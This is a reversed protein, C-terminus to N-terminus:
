GNASVEEHYKHEMIIGFAGVRHAVVRAVCATHQYIEMRIRQQQDAPLQHYTVFSAGVLEVVAIMLRTKM